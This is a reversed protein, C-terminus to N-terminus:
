NYLARYILVNEPVFIEDEKVGKIKLYIVLKDAAKWEGSLWFEV